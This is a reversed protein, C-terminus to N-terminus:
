ACNQVTCAQMWNDCPFNGLGLPAHAGVLGLPVGPPADRATARSRTTRVLEVGTNVSWNTALVDLVVGQTGSWCRLCYERMARRTSLITTGTGAGVRM